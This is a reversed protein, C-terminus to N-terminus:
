RSPDAELGVWRVLARLPGEGDHRWWAPPWAQRRFTTLRTAGMESLQGALRMRDRETGELACSQLIRRAPGLLPPVKSADAVPHIRVTRGLCSPEFPSAPEFLVM